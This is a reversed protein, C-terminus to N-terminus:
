SKGEGFFNDEKNFKWEKFSPHPSGDWNVKKKLSMTEKKMAALEDYHHEANTKMTIDTTFILFYLPFSSPFYIVKSLIQRGYRKQQITPSTFITWVMKKRDFISMFM